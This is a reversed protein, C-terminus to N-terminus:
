RDWPDTADLPRRDLNRRKQDAEVSDPNARTVARKELVSKPAIVASAPATAPAPLEVLTDERAAPNDGSSPLVAAGTFASKSPPRSTNAALSRAASTNATVSSAASLRRSGAWNSGRSMAWMASAALLGVGLVAALVARILPGIPASRAGARSSPRTTALAPNPKPQGSEAAAGVCTIENSATWEQANAEDADPERANAPGAKAVTMPARDSGPGNSYVPISSLREPPEKALEEGIMRRLRERESAFLDSVYRGLDRKSWQDDTPGLYAEIALQMKAASRFRDDPNSALAQQYISAVAAPVGTVPTLWPLDGKLLRRFITIEESGDWLRRGTIAEWMMAGVSFIDARRDVTGGCVQEPAMYCLKGKLWGPRTEVDSSAAKAIGFDLVKVQGDYGVFINQPNVDRHVLELPTGGFDTLEHAYDLGALADSLIKLHFALPIGGRARAKKRLRALSQGELFEMSIFWTGRDQGVEYTHVINPHSLRTALRAEGLFMAIYEQDDLFEPRLRKAVVLREVGALGTALALHVEAM